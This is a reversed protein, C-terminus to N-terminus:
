KNKKNKDQNNKPAPSGPLPNPVTYVIPNDILLLFDDVLELEWNNALKGDATYFVIVVRLKTPRTSTTSNDYMLRVHYDVYGYPYRHLFQSISREIVRFSGRNITPNQPFLNEFLRGGLLAGIIHGADDGPLGLKQILKRYRDNVEWGTGIDGLYIKAHVYDVVIQQGSSVEHTAIERVPGRLERGDAARVDRIRDRIDHRISEITDAITSLQDSDIFDIRDVLKALEESEEELDEEDLDQEHKTQKKRRKSPDNDDGGGGSGTGGNNTDTTTTTTTTTTTNSNNNNGSSSSTGAGTEVAGTSKSTNKVYGGKEASYKVENLKNYQQQLDNAKKMYDGSKMSDKANELKDFEAMVKNQAVNKGIRDVLRGAGLGTLGDSVPMLTLDFLDGANPNNIANDIAAVYGSPKDTVATTLVDTYAGGTIGGAVAGVPGGLVFGCVGGAAVGTTRTASRMAQNGGEQDGCAYHVLGKCHGVVPVGDAINSVNRVCRKQTELAGDPDGAILQVVSTAQSIVPTNRLFNEQTRAAGETDGAILQVGSKVQSVVPISDTAGM